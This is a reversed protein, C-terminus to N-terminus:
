DSSPKWKNRKRQYIHPVFHGNAVFSTSIWCKSLIIEFQLFEVRWSSLLVYKICYRTTRMQLIDERCIWWASPCKIGQRVRGCPRTTVLSLRSKFSQWCIMPSTSYSKKMNLDYVVKETTTPIVSNHPVSHQLRKAHCIDTNRSLFPFSHPAAYKFSETPFIGFPARLLTSFDDTVEIRRKCHPTDPTLYRNNVARNAKVNVM